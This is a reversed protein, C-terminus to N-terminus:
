LTDQCGRLLPQHIRVAFAVAATRFQEFLKAAMQDHGALRQELRENAIGRPLLRHAHMMVDTRSRPLFDQYECEGRGRLATVAVAKLVSPSFLPIKRLNRIGQTGLRYCFDAAQRVASLMPEPDDAARGSWQKRYQLAPGSENHRYGCGTRPLRTSHEAQSAIPSGGKGIAVM